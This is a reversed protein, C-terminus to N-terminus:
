ILHMTIQPLKHKSDAEAYELMIMANEIIYDFSLLYSYIPVTVIMDTHQSCQVSSGFSNM